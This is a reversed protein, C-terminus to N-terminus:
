FHSSLFHPQIETLNVFYGGQLIKNQEELMSSTIKPAYNICGYQDKSRLACYPVFRSVSIRPSKSTSGRNINEFKRSISNLLGSFGNGLVKGDELKETLVPYSQVIERCVDRLLNIRPNIFDKQILFVTENILEMRASRELPLNNELSEALREQLRLSLADLKPVYKCGESSLKVSKSAPFMDVQLPESLESM